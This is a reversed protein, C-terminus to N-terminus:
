DEEHSHVEDYIDCIVRDLLIAQGTCTRCWVTLGFFDDIVTQGHQRLKYALHDSVLWHEYVEAGRIDNDRICTEIAEDESDFEELCSIDYLKEVYYSEGIQTIQYNDSELEDIAEELLDKPKNEEPDFTIYNESDAYEILEQLDFEGIEEPEVEESSDTYYWHDGREFFQYGQSECDDKDPMTQFLEYFLEEPYDRGFVGEAIKPGMESVLESLCYYVHDGVYKSVKNQYEGDSYKSM